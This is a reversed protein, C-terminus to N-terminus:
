QIPAGMPTILKDADKMSILGAYIAHRGLPAGGFDVRIATPLQPIIVGTPLTLNQPPWTPYSKGDDAIYTFRGPDGTWRWYPRFSATASDRYELVFDRGDSGFRWEMSVPVGPRTDLGAITLGSLAYEAGKFPHLGNEYEPVLGALSDRLWSASIASDGALDVWAGLRQRLDFIRSLGDFAAATLMGVLVLVVLVELLTMGATAGRIRRSPKWM